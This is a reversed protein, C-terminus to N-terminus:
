TLQPPEGEMVMVNVEAAQQRLAKWPRYQDSHYWRYFHDLSPFEHIVITNGPWEGELIQGQRGKVLFHGGYAAISPLHGSVYRQFAAADIIRVINVVCYAKATPQADNM